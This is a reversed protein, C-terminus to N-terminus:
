RVVIEIQVDPTATAVTGYLPCRRKYTAVLENAEDDSVGTLEFKMRVTQFLTVDGEKQHDRLYTGEAQVELHKLPLNIEKAVRELLNVACATLGTMFYEGATVEDYGVDEAIFHHHRSNCIARGPIGSSYTRAHFTRKTM